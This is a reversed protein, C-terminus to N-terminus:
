TLSIITSHMSGTSRSKAAGHGAEIVVADGFLPKSFFARLAVVSSQMASAGVGGRSLLDVLRRDLRIVYMKMRNQRSVADFDAGGADMGSNGYKQPQDDLSERDSM